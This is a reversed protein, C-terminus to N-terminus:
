RTSEFEKTRARYLAKIRKADEITYKAPEHPGELKEVRELGIKQLLGIRYFHHNGGKETNCPQCQKNVNDENFRLAPHAGISLFHGAHWQGQHFRGCSICPLKEDRARIWKNFETQAERLHEARTKIAEKRAKLEAREVVLKRRAVKEKKAIGYAVACDLQCFRDILANGKAEFPQRCQKCKAKKARQKIQSSAKRLQGTRIM